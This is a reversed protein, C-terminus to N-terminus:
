FDILLYVNQTYVVNWVRGENSDLISVLDDCITKFEGASHMTNMNIKCFLHPQSEDSRNYFSVSPLVDDECRPKSNFLM